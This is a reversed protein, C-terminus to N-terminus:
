KDETEQKLKEQIEERRSDAYLKFLECVDAEFGNFFKDMSEPHAQVIEITQASLNRFSVQIKDM